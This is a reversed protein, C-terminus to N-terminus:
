FEFLERENQEIIEMFHFHNDIHKNILEKLVTHPYKLNEVYEIVLEPYKDKYVYELYYTLQIKCNESLNVNNIEEKLENSILKEDEPAYEKLYRTRKNRKIVTIKKKDALSKICKAVTSICLNLEKALHDNTEYCIGYKKRFDYIKQLILKENSTLEIDYFIRNIIVIGIAEKDQKQTKKVEDKILTLTKDSPIIKEKTLNIYGLENLKKVVKRVSDQKMNMYEALKAFKNLCGTRTYIHLNLIETLLVKETLNLDKRRMIEDHLEIYSM